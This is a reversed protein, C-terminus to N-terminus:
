SGASKGFLLFWKNWAQLSNKKEYQGMRRLNKGYKSLFLDFNNVITNNTKTKLVLFHQQVTENLNKALM